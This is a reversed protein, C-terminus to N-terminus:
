KRRIYFLLTVDFSNSSNTYNDNETILTNDIEKTKGEKDVYTNPYASYVTKYTNKDLKYTISHEDVAVKKGKEKNIEEDLEPKKELVDKSIVKLQEKSESEKNTNDEESSNRDEALKNTDENTIIESDKNNVVEEKIDGITNENKEQSDDINEAMISINPLITGLIIIITIMIAIIKKTKEM